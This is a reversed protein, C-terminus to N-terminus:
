NKRNPLLNDDDWCDPSEWITGAAIGPIRKGTDKKITKKKKTTAKKVLKKKTKAKQPKM